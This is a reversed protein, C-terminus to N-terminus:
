MNTFIRDQDKLGGYVEVNTGVDASFCRAAGVASRKLNEAGHLAASAARRAAIVAAM